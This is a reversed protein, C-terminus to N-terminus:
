SIQSKIVELCVFSGQDNDRLEEIKADDGPKGFLTSRIKSMRFEKLYNKIDQKTIFKARSYYKHGKKGLEEYYKGYESDKPIFCVVLRKRSVRMAEKLLKEPDEVFCITVSIFSCEVANDRIPLYLAHALIRDEDYGTIEKLMFISSDISVKRGEIVEHFIGPGSGIDICDKLRFSSVLRKESEYITAHREYWSKYGKADTFINEV